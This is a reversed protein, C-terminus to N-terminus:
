PNHKIYRPSWEDSTYLGQDLPVFPQFFAGRSWDSQYLKTGFGYDHFHYNNYRLFRQPAQYKENKKNRYIMCIIAVLLIGCLIWIVNNNNM